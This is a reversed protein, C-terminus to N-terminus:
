LCDFNQLRVRTDSPHPDHTVKGTSIFGTVIEREFLDIRVTGHLRNGSIKRM